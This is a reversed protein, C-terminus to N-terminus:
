NLDVCMLDEAITMEGSYNERLIALNQGLVQSSSTSIHSVILHGIEATTAMQGWVSPKAHLTGTTNESAAFHIVLFDVDRIFDVFSPDSGNQDSSFAISVGAVEIRYGITPVNAHPVGTGQVVIDTGRWVEMSAPNSTDVEVVQIDLRDQLIQYIGGEGFLSDTFNGISPFVGAANPGSLTFSGGQPWLIAPLEASHDPHLHSLAILEIDSLNAGSQHFLNKTGSGADVM